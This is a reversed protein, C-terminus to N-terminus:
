ELSILNAIYDQVVDASMPQHSPYCMERRVEVHTAEFEALFDSTTKEKLKLAKEWVGLEPHSVKLRKACMNAKFIGPSNGVRAGDVRVEAVLPQGKEDRAKVNLASPRPEMTWMFKRDDGKKLVVQQGKEYFCLDNVLLRHTGAELKLRKMPSMGVKVRDVYIPLGPPDSAINLMAFRPSLAWKVLAGAALNLTETRVDYDELKMQVKYDGEELEHSCPTQECIAVGGIKV